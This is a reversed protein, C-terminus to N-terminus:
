AARARGKGSPRFLFCFPGNEYPVDAASLVLCTLFLEAFRGLSSSECRRLGMPLNTKARRAFIGERAVCDSEEPAAEAKRCRGDTCLLMPSCPCCRNQPCHRPGRGANDEEGELLSPMTTQRALLGPMAGCLKIMHFLERSNKIVFRYRTVFCPWRDLLFLLSVYLKGLVISKRSNKIM